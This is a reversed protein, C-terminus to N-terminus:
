KNAERKAYLDLLAAAVDIVKDQAKRKKKAWNDNGLKSLQPNESGSYRAVKNLATIPINLM